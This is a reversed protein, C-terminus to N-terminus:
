KWIRELYGSQKLENMFRPYVFDAPKASMAMPTDERIEEIPNRTYCNFHLRVPLSKPDESAAYCRRAQEACAPVLGAFVSLAFFLIKSYMAMPHSELTSRIQHM